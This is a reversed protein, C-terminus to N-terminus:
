LNLNVIKECNCSTSLLIKVNFIILKKNLYNIVNKYLNQLMKLFTKYNNFIKRFRMPFRNYLLFISINNM